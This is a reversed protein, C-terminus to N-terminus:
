QALGMGLGLDWDPEWSHLPSPVWSGHIVWSYSSAVAISIWVNVWGKIHYITGDVKADMIQRLNSIKVQSGMEMM